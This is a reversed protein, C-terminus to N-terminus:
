LETIRSSYVLISDFYLGQFELANELRLHRDLELKLIDAIDRYTGTSTLYFLWVRTGPRSALRLATAAAERALEARQNLLGPVDMWGPHSQTSLPYSEREICDSADLRRWYYEVASFSLSTLILTDGCTATEM